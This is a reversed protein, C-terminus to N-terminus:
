LSATLPSHSCASHSLDLSLARVVVIPIVMSVYAIVVAGATMVVVVVDPVVAVVALVLTVLGKGGLPEVELGM